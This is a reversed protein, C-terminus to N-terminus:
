IRAKSDELSMVTASVFKGSEIVPGYVYDYDLGKFWVVVQIEVQTEDLIHRM